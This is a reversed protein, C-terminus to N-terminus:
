ESRLAIMPDVRTARWGPVLTALAAVGLLLSAVLALTLPDTARVGYLQSEILRTLAFAGLLGIAVGVLALRIGQGLVLGLLSGPNAGLAMRVGMEQARRTVDFSMVGYIGVAALVLAVGAFLGLLLMSFRRQGVAAALLEEMTRIQAIPQDPDIARVEGRVPGVLRLPDGTTRIALSMSGPGLQRFPRYVQVRREADVGQQAAYGVVGVVEIWAPEGAELLEFAIRKGIPEEGPWYREALGQDVIAVPPTGMRDTDTFYRGRLLPIQLTRHFNEDVLRYDGWPNPQGEPLELGEVAFSRTGGWGSFPLGTSAGANVVGPLAASRELVQEFFAIRATDSPYRASPLTLNMTLVNEPNFGPDVRSLQAFSRMLLGAGALLTLALALEAVVLVRRAALGRADAAGTRGGERLTSQLNTRSVHLAPVLGFLLGTGLAVGLTFLLVTSDISVDMIWPLNSPNLAVLFRIAAYALALGLAGGVLALVVSEVLLQRILDARRAGLAGRIAIEKRRAAARALLLNAVNGCAILLVFGVAGLLVLLAPRLDGTVEQAVPRLRMTWDPPYAEPNDNRLREAFIALQRQAEEPSVGPRLRATLQLFENTRAALSQPSFVIPRWLEVTPVPFSRFDSPMVGIIEHAEGNLQMTRGIVGPDGGFARQWLGHSLVVVREEGAEIDAPQITRGRAPPVGYTAFFEGSVLAGELREPQAAGTFNVGAFTQVAVREFPGGTEQLDRYTPAAAGAELNNLSPYFHFVNVLRDPDAYPLPRLLVANVVSFIATNAGIGLSLTLVIVVAFGPNKLLRRLAYRLDQLVREMDFRELTLLM